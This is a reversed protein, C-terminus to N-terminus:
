PRWEPPMRFQPHEEYIARLDDIPTMPDATMRAVEKILPELETNESGMLENGDWPLVELKNLAMFDRIVNGRIFWLGRLEGIGCRNPDVKGGLARLYVDGAYLFKGKPLDTTDFRLSFNEKQVADVQADVQVWRDQDTHWYECIWHDGMFNPTFYTDFGNRARAPVGQHRLFSCLLLAYDRCTGVVREEPVRAVTLPADNLELVRDLREEVTRLNMEERRREESPTVGYHPALYTHLILGQAVACLGPIDHPLAAYLHHHRGPDTIESQTAYSRLMDCTNNNDMSDGAELAGKQSFSSCAGGLVLLFLPLVGLMWPKQHVVM